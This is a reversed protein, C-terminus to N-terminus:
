GRSQEVLQYFIQADHRTEVEWIFIRDTLVKSLATVDADFM